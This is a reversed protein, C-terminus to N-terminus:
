FDDSDSSNIEIGGLKELISDMGMEKPKGIKKSLSSVTEQKNTKKFIIKNKEPLIERNGVVGSSWIAREM